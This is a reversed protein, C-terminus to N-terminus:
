GSGAETCQPFISAYGGANNRRSKKQFLPRPAVLRWARGPALSVIHTFSKM